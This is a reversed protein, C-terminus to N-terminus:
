SRSSNSCHVPLHSPFQDEREREKSEIDENRNVIMMSSSSLLGRKECGGSPERWLLHSKETKKQTWEAMNYIRNSLIVCVCLSETSLPPHSLLSSHTTRLQNVRRSSPSENYKRAGGGTGGQERAPKSKKKKKKFPLARLLIKTGGGKFIEELTMSFSWRGGRRRIKSM